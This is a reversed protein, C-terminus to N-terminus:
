SRLPHGPLCRDCIRLTSPNSLDASFCEWLSVRKWQFLNAARRCCEGLKLAEELSEPRAWYIFQASKLHHIERLRLVVSTTAEQRCLVLTGFMQLRAAMACVPGPQAAADICVIKGRCSALLADLRADCSSIDGFDIVEDALNEIGQRYVAETESAPVLCATRAGQERAAVLLSLALPNAGAVIVTHGLELEAKEIISLGCALAFRALASQPDAASQLPIGLCTHQIRDTQTPGITGYLKSVDAEHGLPMLENPSCVLFGWNGHEPARVGGQRHDLRGTRPDWPLSKVIHFGMCDVIGHPIPTM